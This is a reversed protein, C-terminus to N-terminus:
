QFFGALAGGWKKSLRQELADKGRGIGKFLARQAEKPDRKQRPPEAPDAIPETKTRAKAGVSRTTYSPGRLGRLLPVM